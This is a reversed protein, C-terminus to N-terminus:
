PIQLEASKFRQVLEMVSPVKHINSIYLLDVSIWSDMQMFIWLHCMVYSKALFESKQEYWFDILQSVWFYWFLFWVMITYAEFIKFPYCGCMVSVILKIHDIPLIYAHEPPEFFLKWCLHHSCFMIVLVLLNRLGMTKRWENWQMMIYGM